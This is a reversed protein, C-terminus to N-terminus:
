DSGTPRFPVVVPTAAQRGSHWGEDYGYDYGARYALDAPTQHAAVDRRRRLEMVIFLGVVIAHWWRTNAMLATVM